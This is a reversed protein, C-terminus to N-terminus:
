GGISSQYAAEAAVEAADWDDSDQEIGAALIQDGDQDDLGTWERPLDDAIVDRAIAKGIRTGIETANTM